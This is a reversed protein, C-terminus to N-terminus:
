SADAAAAFVNFMVTCANPTRSGSSKSPAKAAISRAIRGEEWGFDWHDRAPDLVDGILFPIVAVRLTLAVVVVILLKRTSNLSAM